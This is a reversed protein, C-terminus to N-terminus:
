EFMCVKYKELEKEKKKIEVHLLDSGYVEQVGQWRRKEIPIIEQLATSM